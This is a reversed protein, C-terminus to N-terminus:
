VGVLYLLLESCCFSIMIMIVLQCTFRFWWFRGFRFCVLCVMFMFLGFFRVLGCHSICVSFIFM